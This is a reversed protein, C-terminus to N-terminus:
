KMPLLKDHPNQNSSLFQICHQLIAKAPQSTTTSEEHALLNCMANTLHPLSYTLVVQRLKNLEQSHLM